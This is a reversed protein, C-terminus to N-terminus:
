KKSQVMHTPTRLPQVAVAPLDCLQGNVGGAFFNLCPNLTAVWDDEPLEEGGVLSFSGQSGM